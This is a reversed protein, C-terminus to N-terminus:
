RQPDRVLTLAYQMPVYLYYGSRDRSPRRSRPRCVLRYVSIAQDDVTLRVVRPPPRQADIEWSQGHAPGCYARARSRRSPVAGEAARQHQVATM